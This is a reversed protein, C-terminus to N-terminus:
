GTSGPNRRLGLDRLSGRHLGIGGPEYEVTCGDEDISITAADLDRALIDNRTDCGTGDADDYTEIRELVDIALEDQAQAPAVTAGSAFLGATLAALGTRLLKKM